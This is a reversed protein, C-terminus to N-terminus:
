PRCVIGVNLVTLPPAQLLGEPSNHTGRSRRVEVHEGAPTRPPREVGCGMGFLCRGADLRVRHSANARNISKITLMLRHLWCKVYGRIIRVQDPRDTTGGNAAQANGGIGFNMWVLTCLATLVSLPARLLFSRWFAKRDADKEREEELEAVVAAPDRQLTIALWYALHLPVAREGRRIAPIWARNIRAAKALAYDSKLSLRVKAADLLSAAKM